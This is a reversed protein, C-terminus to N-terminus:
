YPVLNCHFEQNNEQQDNSHYELVLSAFSLNKNIFSTKIITEESMLINELVWIVSSFAFTLM